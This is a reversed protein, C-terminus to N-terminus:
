HTSMTTLLPVLLGIGRYTTLMLARPPLRQSFGRPQVTALQLTNSGHEDRWMMAAGGVGGSVGILCDSSQGRALALVIYLIGLERALRM